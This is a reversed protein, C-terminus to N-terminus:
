VPALCGRCGRLSKPSIRHPVCGFVVAPADASPITSQHSLYLFVRYKWRLSFTGVTQVQCLSLTHTQQTHTQSLTSSSVTRLRNTKVFSTGVNTYQTGVNTNYRGVILFM